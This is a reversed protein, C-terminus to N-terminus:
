HQEDVYEVFFRLICDLGFISELVVELYLLVQPDGLEVADAPKYTRFAAFFAYPWVGSAVALFTVLVRFANYIM